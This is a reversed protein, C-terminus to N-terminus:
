HWGYTVQLKDYGFAVMAIYPWYAKFIKKLYVNTFAVSIVVVKSM